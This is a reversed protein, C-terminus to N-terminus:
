EARHCSQCGMGSTMGLVMPKAPDDKKLGESWGKEDALRKEVAEKFPFSDWADLKPMAKLLADAETLDGSKLAYDARFLM